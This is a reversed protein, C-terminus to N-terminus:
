GGSMTGGRASAFVIWHGDPSWVSGTNFASDVTLQRPECGRDRSDLRRPRRSRRSVFANTHGDLKTWVLYIAVGM